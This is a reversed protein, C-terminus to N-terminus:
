EFFPSSFAKLVTSTLASEYDHACVASSLVVGGVRGVRGRWLSGGAGLDTRAAGPLADRGRQPAGHERAISVSARHRAAGVRREDVHVMDLRAGFATAVLCRIKQPKARSVVSGDMAALQEDVELSIARETEPMGIASGVAVREDRLADVCV